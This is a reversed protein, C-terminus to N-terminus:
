NADVIKMEKLSIATSLFDKYSNKTLSFSLGLAERTLKQDSDTKLYFKNLDVFFRVWEGIDALNYGTAFGYIINLNDYMKKNSVNYFDALVKALDQMNTKKVSNRVLEALGPNENLLHYEVGAEILNHSSIYARKKDIAFAKSILNVLKPTSNKYAFGIGGKYKRHSLFDVTNHYHIGKTLSLYSPESKKIYSSFKLIKGRKHLDDWSIISTGALDPLISGIVKLPDLNKDVEKAYYVHTHFFM